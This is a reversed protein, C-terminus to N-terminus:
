VILYYLIMFIISNFIHYLTILSGNRLLTKYTFGEVKNKKALELCILDVAAGQPLFNSGINIGLIFGIKVLNPIGGPAGAYLQQLVAIMVLATPVQALMGSLISISILVVIAAALPNTPIVKEIFNNLFTFTGNIQMTGILLFTAFLFSILKWNVKKLSDAFQKRNLISILAVGLGAVLYAQPVIILGVIILGFYIWNLIFQKKNVIVIKPSMIELLITKQLQEPPKIKRIFILDMGVLTFLLVPFVFLSFNGLFWVTDLEFGKASSILINEASSFPTYISGINVTFSIGFIYPATKIKLIRTARIVLPVFIIAITIDSILAASLASVTCILYFFLRHNAGVLHLVKLALFQFLKNEEAIAVIIQMSILFIIADFEVYSLFKILPNEEPIFIVPDTQNRFFFYVILCAIMAALLAYVAYDLKERSFILM